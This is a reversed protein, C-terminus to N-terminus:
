ETLPSASMVGRGFWESVTGFRNRSRGLADLFLDHRDASDDQAKRIAKITANQQADLPCEITDDEDSMNLCRQHFSHKCLFHVTPLDLTQGCASCRTAQFVAPKSGLEDIEKQKANTDSQYTQILRRNNSIESREREINSSLYRKILGM